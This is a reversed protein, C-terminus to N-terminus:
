SPKPIAPNLKIGFRQAYWNCIARRLRPIGQSLSYRHTQQKRAAEVM